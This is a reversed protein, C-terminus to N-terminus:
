IPLQAQPIIQGSPHLVPLNCCVSLLKPLWQVCGMNEIRDIKEVIYNELDTQGLEYSSVSAM